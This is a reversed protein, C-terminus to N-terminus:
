TTKLLTFFIKNFNSLNKGKLFDEGVTGIFSLCHANCFRRKIKTMKLRVMIFSNKLRKRNFGNFVSCDGCGVKREVKIALIRM